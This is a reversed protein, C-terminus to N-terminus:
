EEVIEVQMIKVIQGFSRTWTDEVYQGIFVTYVTFVAVVAINKFVPLTDNLPLQKAARGIYSFSLEVAFAVIMYPSALVAGVKFLTVFIEVIAVLPEVALDPSTELVPWFTFSRYYISMLDYLGGVSVFLLLSLALMVSGLTTTELANVQDFINAQNAGRYIDTMDGAAQAAWFPIGLGAGLLVGFCFEKAGLAAVDSFGIPALKLQAFTVLIVPASLGLAVGFRVIGSINFLTFLPFITMIGLARLGGLLLAIALFTSEDPVITSTM